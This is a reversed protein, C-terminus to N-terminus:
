SREHSMAQGRVQALRGAAARAEDPDTYAKVWEIKGNARISVQAVRTEVRGEGGVLRASERVVGLGVGHGLDVLEEEEFRYDEWSRHWDEFFRRIAEEGEFIGLGAASLDYVADPGFGSM